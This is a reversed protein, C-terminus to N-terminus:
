TFGTLPSIEYWGIATTAGDCGVVVVVCNIIIYIYTMEATVSIAM